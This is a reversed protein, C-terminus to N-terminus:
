NVLSDLNPVISSDQDVDQDVHNLSQQLMSHLSRVAKLDMRLTMPGLHLSFGGCHSCREIQFAGASALTTQVCM